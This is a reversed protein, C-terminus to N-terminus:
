IGGAARPGSLPVPVRGTGELEPTDSRDGM